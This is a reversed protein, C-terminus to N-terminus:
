AYVDLRQGLSGNTPFATATEAGTSQGPSRRGAAEAAGIRQEIEGIRTSLEAIRAQGESTKGSPCGLWQALETQCRALQVELAVTSQNAVTSPSFSANGLTGIM